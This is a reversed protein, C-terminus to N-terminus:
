DGLVGGGVCGARGEATSLAYALETRHDRPLYYARFMCGRHKGQDSALMRLSNLSSVDFTYQPAAAAATPGVCRAFKM